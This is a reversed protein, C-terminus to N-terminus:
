LHLISPLLFLLVLDKRKVCALDAEGNLFQGASKLGHDSFDYFSDFALGEGANSEGVLKVCLELGERVIQSSSALVLAFNM